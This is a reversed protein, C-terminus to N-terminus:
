NVKCLPPDAAYGAPAAEVFYLGCPTIIRDPHFPITYHHGYDWFDNLKYGANVFDRIFDNRNFIYEPYYVLGGNQLSVFRPGDHLSVNGLLIHRPRTPQNLLAFFAELSEVYQICDNALLIDIRTGHFQAIDDIFQINPRGACLERGAEAIAPVDCVVWRVNKLDLYKCTQLFHVGVNGGFDFVTGAGTLNRLIRDIHFLVPYDDAQLDLTLNDKYQRALDKNDYGLPRRRPAAANAEEFSNFVGRSEAFRFALYKYSDAILRKARRLVRRVHSPSKIREVTMAGWSRRAPMESSHRGANNGRM